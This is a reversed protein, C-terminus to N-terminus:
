FIWTAKLLLSRELQTRTAASAFEAHAPGLLNQGVVAFETNRWPKWAYRLDATTYAPVAPNSLASVHRITFDFESQHPLDFSSRIMWGLAPDLGAAQVASLDTSGPKLQRKETLGTVGGSLRWIDSAQFVGWLEIGSTTGEAENAFVIPIFTPPPASFEQTRLHDYVSHFVTASYSFRSVPQGRYGIEVVNAVESIVNPGGALLYPTAAPVFTDSDLRSPARVTRSAATWLLYDPAFKWALRATPLFENGTYDNREVRAGLTLMLEKRLTIEDQVFISEWSQDVNAPLFAVVASNRVRDLSFRVNAGYSLAHAATPRLSHQVQIDFIDLTEAFTPPVTRETRDYYAQVSLNSDDDFLRTWQTTLNVGALSITDLALAVGSISITGPLPQGEDGSYANGQVMFSDASRNWDARFGAQSMHWADDKATGNAISTHDRDFYKGYVRYNIDTDTKGGYRFASDNGRSGSGITALGGQTDKASRTIVNIVGNVANAGWLTGGPGSIVEIREVDELMVNQVDWFVGSFLPTYVSRGDILVLLKNAASNNFGRASIAYGSASVQAIQLNPALRLAEPLSTAGSRRIDDATIVFISAAADSLREAHKSVSTIELNSLEELSMDALSASALQMAASAGASSGAIVAGLILARGFGSHRLQAESRWGM